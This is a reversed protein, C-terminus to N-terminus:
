FNWFFNSRRKYIGGGHYSNVRAAIERINSVIRNEQVTEIEYGTVVRLFDSMMDVNGLIDVHESSRPGGRMPDSPDFEKQHHYERTTVQLGSPNLGSSPRTWADACLYGLSLLPVSGDGDSYRVGRRVRQAENDVAVDLMVVPDSLPSSTAGTANRGLSANGGNITTATDGSASDGSTATRYFYARETDIGTGYFCYLRMNPAHPLPTRTPDHWTRLSPREDGHFSFLRAVSHNAHLEANYAQLFDITDETSLQSRTLFKDITKNGAYVNPAGGSSGANEESSTMFLLPSPHEPHCFPDDPALTLCLDAGPSWLADGGKPLMSWLSGWSSWLQRRLRRGFFQEVMTGMPGMIITDSMEGSLLASAAKPVGLHSGAINVYAHVHRDVWNKGGGGGGNSESATVWAFFYHVVLTGMSHSTLVVKHGSTKHMDEIQSKLHTLYGDRQELLPFALRWDYPMMAMTSPSYGVDALNELLRAFVWYNAIFYDAAEFGSSARLRIGEPDSGTTPDLSMHENWCDTDLIFSRAGNAAAWLRQRFYRKACDHGAWVELGSTVFGPVMIVPHKALSSSSSGQGARSPDAAAKMALQYGPRKSEQLWHSSMLPAAQLISENLKNMLIEQQELLWRRTKADADITSLVAEELRFTPEVVGVRKLLM